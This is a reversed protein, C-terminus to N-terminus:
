FNEPYIIYVFFIKRIQNSIFVTEELLPIWAFELVRKPRLGIGWASQEAVEAKKGGHM